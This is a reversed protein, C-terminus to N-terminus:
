WSHGIAGAQCAAVCPLPPRSSAPKCPGCEYTLKNKKDHRVVAVPEDTMPDNPDEDLVQFVEAPCATVCAGCGNCTDTDIAIFYSGSGDGYGYQALM